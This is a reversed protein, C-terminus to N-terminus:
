RGNKANAQRAKRIADHHDLAPESRCTGLDYVFWNTDSGDELRGPVSMAIFRERLTPDQRICKRSHGM